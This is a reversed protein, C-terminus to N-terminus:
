QNKIFNITKGVNDIEISAFEDLVSNGLLIPADLNLAVSAQVDRLVLGEKGGIEIERINITANEMVSGDAIRATGVGLIDSKDIKGNKFLTQVENLSLHIGSAGTDYSMSMTVGNLKVPITKVGGVEEYPISISAKPEKQELKYPPAQKKPECSVFLMCCVMAIIM